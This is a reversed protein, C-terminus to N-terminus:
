LRYVAAGRESAGPDDSASDFGTESDSIWHASWLAWFDCGVGRRQLCLSEMGLQVRGRQDRCGPLCFRFWAVWFREMFPGIQALVMMNFLIHAFGLHVFACTVLRWWQGETITWFGQNVGWCTLAAASTKDPNFGSFIMVLFVLVNIGVIIWAVFINSTFWDLLQGFNAKIGAPIDDYNVPQQELKHQTEPFLSIM